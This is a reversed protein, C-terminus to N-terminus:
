GRQTGGGIWDSAVWNNDLLTEQGGLKKKAVVFCNVMLGLAQDLNGARLQVTVISFLNMGLCLM